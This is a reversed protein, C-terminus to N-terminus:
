CSSYNQRSRKSGCTHREEAWRGRYFTRSVVICCHWPFYEASTTSSQNHDVYQRYRWRHMAGPSTWASFSGGGGGRYGMKKELYMVRRHNMPLGLRALEDVMEGSRFRSHVYLEIYVSLPTETRNANTAKTTSPFLCISCHTAQTETVTEEASPGRTIMGVLFKLGDPVSTKQCQEKFGHEEVTFKHNNANRYSAIERRCILAAKVPARCEHSSNCYPSTTVLNNLASAAM